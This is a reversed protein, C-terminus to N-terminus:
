TSNKAGSVSLVTQSWDLEGGVQFRIKWTFM